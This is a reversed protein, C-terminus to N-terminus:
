VSGLPNRDVPLSINPAYLVTESDIMKDTQM